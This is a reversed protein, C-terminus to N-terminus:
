HLVLVSNTNRPPVIADGRHEEDLVAAKRELGATDMDEETSSNKITTV